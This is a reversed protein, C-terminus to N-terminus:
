APAEIRNASTNQHHQFSRAGRFQLRGFPLERRLITIRWVCIRTYYLLFVPRKLGAKKHRVNGCGTAAKPPMRTVSPHHIQVINAEDNNCQGNLCSAVGLRLKKPRIPDSLSSLIWFSSRKALFPFDFSVHSLELSCGFRESFVLSNAQEEGIRGNTETIRQM